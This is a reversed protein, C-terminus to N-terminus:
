PAAAAALRDGGHGTSGTMRMVFSSQGRAVNCADVTVEGCSVPSVTGCHDVDDMPQMAFPAM